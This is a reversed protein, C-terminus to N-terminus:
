LSAKSFSSDPIKAGIEVDGFVITTTSKKELDEVLIRTPVQCGRRDEYGEVRARRLVLGAPNKTELRKLLGTSTELIATRTSGDADAALLYLTEGDESSSPSLIGGSAEGVMLDRSRLDSDFIPEDAGGKPLARLGKSTKIWASGGGDTGVIALYKMDSLIEPQVIHLLLKYAGGTERSLLVRITRKKEGSARSVIMDIRFSVTKAGGFLVFPPPAQTEAAGLGGTGLMLLFVLLVLIKPSGGAIGSHGM